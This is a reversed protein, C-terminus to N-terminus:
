FRTFQHSAPEPSPLYSLAISSKIRLVYKNVSVPSCTCATPLHPGPADYLNTTKVEVGSRWVHGRERLM